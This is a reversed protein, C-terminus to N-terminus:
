DNKSGEDSYPFPKHKDRDKLASIDANMKAIAMYQNKNEVLHYKYSEVRDLFYDLLEDVDQDSVRSNWTTLDFGSIRCAQCGIDECEYESPEPYSRDFENWTERKAAAGCFPCERLEKDM